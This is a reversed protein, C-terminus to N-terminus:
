LHVYLISITIKLFLFLHVSRIFVFVSKRSEFLSGFRVKQGNLDFVHLNAADALVAPSPLAALLNFSRTQDCGGGGTRKERGGGVM